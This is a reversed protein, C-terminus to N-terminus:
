TPVHFFRVRKSGDVEWIYWCWGLSYFGDLRIEGRHITPSFFGNQAWPWLAMKQVQMPHTRGIVTFALPPPNPCCREHRWQIPSLFHVPFGHFVRHFFWWFLDLPKQFLLKMHYIENECGGPQPKLKGLAPLKRWEKTTNKQPWYRTETGFTTINSVLDYGEFKPPNLCAMDALIPSPNNKPKIHWGILILM